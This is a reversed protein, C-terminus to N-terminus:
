SFAWWDGELVEIGGVDLCPLDDVDQLEDDMLREEFVFSGDGESLWPPIETMVEEFTRVGEEEEGEITKLVAESSELDRKESMSGIEEDGTAPRLSPSASPFKCFIPTEIGAFNQFNLNLGLPPNSLSLKFIDPPFNINIPNEILSDMQRSTPHLQDSSKKMAARHLKLAAVIERRAEAMNLLKEDHYPRCSRTRRRVQRKPRQPPCPAPQEDDRSEGLEGSYERMIAPADGSLHPDGEVERSSRGFTSCDGM